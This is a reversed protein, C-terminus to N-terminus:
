SKTLLSVQEAMEEGIRAIFRLVDPKLAEPFATLAPATEFSLV